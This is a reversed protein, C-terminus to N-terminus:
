RRGLRAPDRSHFLQSELTRTKHHHRLYKMEHSIESKENSKLHGDPNEQDMIWSKSSIYTPIILIIKIFLTNTEIIVMVISM